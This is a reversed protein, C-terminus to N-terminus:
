RLSVMTGHLDYMLYHARWLICFAITLLLCVLVDGWFSKFRLRLGQLIIYRRLMSIYKDSGALWVAWSYLSQFTLITAYITVAWGLWFRFFQFPDDFQLLGDYRM